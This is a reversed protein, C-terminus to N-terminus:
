PGPEYLLVDDIMFEGGPPLVFYFEDVGGGAAPRPRSAALSASGTASFYSVRLRWM